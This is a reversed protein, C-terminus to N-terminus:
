ALPTDGLERSLSRDIKEYLKAFEKDEM